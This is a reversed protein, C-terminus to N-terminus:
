TAGSILLGLYIPSLTGLAGHSPPIPVVPEALLFTPTASFLCYRCFAHLLFAQMYLLCLVVGFMEWVILTFFRRACREVSQSFFNLAEPKRISFLWLERTIPRRKRM